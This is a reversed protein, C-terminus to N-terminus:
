VLGTVNDKVTLKDASITYSPQTGAVQADQGYFSQGVGPATIATTASFTKFQSTDVIPSTVPAVFTSTTATSAATTSGGGCATLSILALLVTCANKNLSM